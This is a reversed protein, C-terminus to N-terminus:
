EADPRLQARGCNLAFGVPAAEDVAYALVVGSRQDVRGVPPGFVFVNGEPISEIVDAYVGKKREAASGFGRQGLQAAVSGVYGVLHSQQVPSCTFGDEKGLHTELTRAAGADAWPGPGPRAVSDVQFGLPATVLGNECGEPGFRPKIPHVPPLPIAIQIAAANLVGTESWPVFWGFLNQDLPVM